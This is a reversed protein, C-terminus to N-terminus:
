SSESKESNKIGATMEDGLSADGKWISDIFEVVQNDGMWSTYLEVKRLTEGPRPQSELLSSSSNPLFLPPLPM